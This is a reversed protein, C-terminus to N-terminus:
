RRKYVNLSDSFKSIFNQIEINTGILPTFTVLSNEFNDATIEIEIHLSCETSTNKKAWYKDKDASYGLVSVKCYKILVHFILDNVFSKKISYIIKTTNIYRYKECKPSYSNSRKAQYYCVSM